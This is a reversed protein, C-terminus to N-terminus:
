DDMASILRIKCKEIMYKNVHILQDAPFYNENINYLWKKLYSKTIITNM